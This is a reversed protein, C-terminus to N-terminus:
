MYGLSRLQEMVAEKDQGRGDRESTHELDQEWAPIAALPRTTSRAGLSRYGLRYLECFPLREGHITNWIDRETFHLIPHVRTHPPTERSSTYDEDLRHEQEDWRIGVLFHSIFQQKLYHLLPVTKTLHSGAFSEPEFFFVPDTHGVSLLQQQNEQSLSAVEIGEGIRPQRSLLDENRIIAVDIGWAAAITNVFQDIEPFADGDDIYVCQPMPLNAEQCAMRTLWLMTTSDKGGTWGLAVRSSANAIAELIHQRSLNCKEQVSLAWHQARTTADM